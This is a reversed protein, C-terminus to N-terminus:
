QLVKCLANIDEGKTFILYNQYDDCVLDFDPPVVLTTTPQVVIAPGDVQNGNVLKLGDYVATQIFQGDFWAERTGVRARSADTGGKPSRELKPKFTKGYATIRLNILEVPATQMSYGYLSDHREHFASAMRELTAPSIRGSAPVDVEVENFQGVYRL